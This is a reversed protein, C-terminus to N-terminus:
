RLGGPVPFKEAAPGERRWRLNLMPKNAWFYNWSKITLAMLETEWNLGAREPPAILRDRLLTVSSKEPLNAGTKIGENFLLTTVEDVRNCIILAAMLSSGAKCRRYPLCRQIEKFMEQIEDNKSDAYRVVADQSIKRWAENTFSFASKNATNEWHLLRRAVAALEPTHSHGMIDLIQGAGRARQNTDVTQFANPDHIGFVVLTQITCGSQLVAHLRHQGDFLEGSQLFKITQGNLSWRGEQMERALSGVQAQSVRRNKGGKQLWAAAKQPTVTVIVTKIGENQVDVEVMDGQRKDLIRKEIEWGAVTRNTKM